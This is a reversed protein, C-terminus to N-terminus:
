IFLHTKYCFIIASFYKNLCSFESKYEQFIVFGDRIHVFFFDNNNHWMEKRVVLVAYRKFLAYSRLCRM